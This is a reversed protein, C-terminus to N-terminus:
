QQAGGSSGGVSQQPPDAEKKMKIEKAKFSKKATEGAGAAATGTALAKAAGSVGAKAAGTIPGGGLITNGIVDKQLPKDVQKLRELEKQDVKSPDFGGNPTAPNAISLGLHLAPWLVLWRGICGSRKM